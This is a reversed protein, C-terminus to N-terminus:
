NTLIATFPQIDRGDLAGDCNTDAFEVQQATPSASLLASSFLAIDNADVASNGDMDGKLVPTSNADAPDSCGDIEDRDLFGDEDRDIGLRTQMGAAVVTYTQESGAVALARLNATTITEGVRDTQYLGAGLYSAGRQEGAVRTKVILGVANTNALSEMNNLLVIQAPPASALNELTTQTGVAAHTDQSSPGPPELLNTPSGQPLDSGAFSLMFAVLDATMQDSTVNFVPENVFREISDVSGDHLVGFGARSRPQTMNFGVKDYQNRLQPIKISVNTSGDVSVIAIHHEGDPGVPVPQFSPPFGVLRADPGAGTPLTHCTVCQVGDLAATRYANLGNVANGNPLPQGAPGFRGTTFHGPLPVNNPLTNNFNRYPNPPFHITGLFNEFEQMENPPLPADDGQLVAFADAFEEIGTRDGRWHHPELGIIDQLTQTTMPGKMPHWDDCNNGPACNQNFSRMDGSPDGLDWALRDMRSDVHCSACAIHGLGSNKHTDYLHKRGIKIASLTADHLAIQDVESETTTDIVSITASFKNLVYLRDRSEDLALGTPGDGVDITIDNADDIRGVRTGADDIIAINNSGMGAVYGRTGTSNWVIARPDGLSKDRESQPISVFPITTGYTLHQNLDSVAITAGSAADVRGLNVRLFRGRLVPEFRVQNTADTGVVTIDGSGPNIGIAMCINMLGTAYRVDLTAADIIAVDNDILEWNPVRSSLAANAGSVLDTWDGNNDDMWDGASNQKVILGVPPPSPNGPKQAPTFNPGDNPPPNMGGYPGAPDSVVNRPFGNAMTSGGGLITSRNGSEFVAVCVENRAANFVLARPDEGEISIRTPPADMATLDFVLVTDAQSCSVFARQSAPSFVVDAPEDDTDLTRIVLGLDLDVISISDSIQNVVWAESNTRARVSVPDIGVPVSDILIPMGSDINLIELRADALNVALLRSGDPTIDLPHVHPTEWNVFSQASAIQPFFVILLGALTSKFM